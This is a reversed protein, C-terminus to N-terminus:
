SPGGLDHFSWICTREHPSQTLAGGGKDGRNGSDVRGLNQFVGELRKVHVDHKNVTLDHFEAVTQGYLHKGRGSVRPVVQTIVDRLPFDEDARFGGAAHVPRAIDNSFEEDIKVVVHGGQFPQGRKRYVDEALSMVENVHAPFFDLSKERPRNCFCFPVPIADALKEVCCVARNLLNHSLDLRLLPVGVGVGFM